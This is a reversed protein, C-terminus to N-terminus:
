DPVTRDGGKKKKKPTVQNSLIIGVCVFFCLHTVVKIETGSQNHLQERTQIIGLEKWFSRRKGPQGTLRWYLLQIVPYCSKKHCMRKYM